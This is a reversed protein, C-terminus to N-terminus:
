FVQAEISLTIAVLEPLDAAFLSGVDYLPSTSETM